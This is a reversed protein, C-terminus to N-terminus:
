RDILQGSQGAILSALPLCDEGYKVSLTPILPKPHTAHSEEPVAKPVDMPVCGWLVWGVVVAVTALVAM